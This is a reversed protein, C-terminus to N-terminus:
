LYEVRSRADQWKKNDADIHRQVEQKDPMIETLYELVTTNSRWHARVVADYTCQVNMSVLYKIVELHNTDSALEIAKSTCTGGVSFLYKVVELHGNESAVNITDETCIAGISLLCKIIELNGCKSAWDIITDKYITITEMTFLYKVVTIYNNYCASKIYMNLFPTNKNINLQKLCYVHGSGKSFVDNNNNNYDRSKMYMNLLVKKDNIKIQEFNNYRQTNYYTSRYFYGCGRSFDLTGCIKDISDCKCGDFCILNEFENLLAPSIYKILEKWEGLIINKAINDKFEDFRNYGFKECITIIRAFNDKTFDPLLNIDDYTLDKLEAVFMDNLEQDDNNYLDSLLRFENIYQM